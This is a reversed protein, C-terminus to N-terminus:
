SECFIAACSASEASSYVSILALLYPRKYFPTTTYNHFIWTSYQSLYNRKWHKVKLKLNFVYFIRHFLVRSLFIKQQQPQQQQKSKRESLFYIDLVVTMTLLSFIPPCLFSFCYCFQPFYLM